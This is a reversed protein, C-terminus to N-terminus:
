FFQTVFMEHCPLNRTINEVTNDGFCWYGFFGLLIYVATVMTMGQNLIGFAGIFNQPTKMQNELPMVVGIAEIAFITITISSPLSTLNKAIPRENIDPLHTMLYYITIGLGIAMCFNALMSVPALYKLNRICTLLILPVLYVLICLRINVDSHTYFQYMQQSNEGIIVSYVMCAGFYTIFLSITVFYRAFTAMFRWRIPGNVFAAEAIEAFSM